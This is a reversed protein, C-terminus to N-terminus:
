LNQIADMKKASQMTQAAMTAPDMVSQRGTM